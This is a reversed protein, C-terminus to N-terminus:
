EGRGERIAAKLGDEKDPNYRVWLDCTRKPDRQNNTTTVEFGLDPALLKVSGQRVANATSIPGQEFVCAWEMPRERLQDAIAKWDYRVRKFPPDGFQIDSKGQKSM